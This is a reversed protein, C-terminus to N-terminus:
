FTSHCSADARNGHARATRTLHSPPCCRRRRASCARATGTEPISNIESHALPSLKFIESRRHLTQNRGRLRESGSGKPGLYSPDVNQSSKGPSTSRSSSTGRFHCAIALRLFQQTFQLKHLPPLCLSTLCCFSGVCNHPLHRYIEGFKLRIEGNWWSLAVVAEIVLWVAVQIESLGMIETM